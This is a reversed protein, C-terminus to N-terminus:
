GGERAVLVRVLRRGVVAFPTLVVLLTSRVVVGGVITKAVDVGTGAYAIIVFTTVGFAIAVLTSVAYRLSFWRSGTKGKVWAFVPVDVVYSALFFSAEGAVFVRLAETLMSDYGDPAKSAPLWILVPIVTVYIVIRVVFAAVVSARATKPGWQDNIVDLIAAGISQTWNGAPFGFGLLAGVKTSAIPSLVTVAAYLAVLFPLM